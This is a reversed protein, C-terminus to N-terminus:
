IFRRLSSHFGASGGKSVEFASVTMDDHRASVHEGPDVVSVVTGVAQPGAVQVQVGCAIAQRGALRWHLRDLSRLIPVDPGFNAAGVPVRGPPGAIVTVPSRGTRQGDRRFQPWDSAASGTSTNFAYLKKDMCGIYVANSTIVPSSDSWDGMTTRWLLSGDPRM